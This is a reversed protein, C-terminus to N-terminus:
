TPVCLAERDLMDFASSWECIKEFLMTSSPFRDNQGCRFLSPSYSFTQLPLPAPSHLLAPLFFESQSLLLPRLSSSSFGLAGRAGCSLRLLSRGLLM